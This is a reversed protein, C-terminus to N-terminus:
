SNFMAKRVQPIRAGVAVVAVILAIQIAYRKM